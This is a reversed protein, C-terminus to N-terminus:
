QVFLIARERGVARDVRALDGLPEAHGANRRRGLGFADPAVQRQRDAGSRRDMDRVDRGRSDSSRIRAARALAARLDGALHRRMM